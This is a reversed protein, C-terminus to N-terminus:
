GTEMAMPTTTFRRLQCICFTSGPPQELLPMTKTTTHLNPSMMGIPSNSSAFCFLKYLIYSISDYLYDDKWEMTTDKWHPVWPVTDGNDMEQINGGMFTKGDSLNGLEYTVRQQIHGNNDLITHDDKKEETTKVKLGSHTYGLVTSNFYSKCGNPHSIKSIHGFDYGFNTVLNDPSKISTVGVDSFNVETNGGDPSTVTMQSGGTTLNIKQGSSHEISSLRSNEHNWREASFTYRIYSGDAKNEEIPLGSGSFSVSSGDPLDLTFAHHGWDEMKHLKVKPDNIYRLGSAHENADTWNFDVPYTRANIILSRDMVAGEFAGTYDVMYPIDLSWGRPLGFKENSGYKYFLGLRLGDDGEALTTRYNLSATNPHISVGDPIGLRNQAFFSNFGDRIANDIMKIRALSIIFNSITSSRPLSVQAM